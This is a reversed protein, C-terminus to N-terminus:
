DVAARQEPDAMVVIAEPTIFLVSGDVELQISGSWSASRTTSELFADVSELDVLSFLSRMETKEVGVLTSLVTVLALSASEDDDIEYRATFRNGRDADTGDAPDM